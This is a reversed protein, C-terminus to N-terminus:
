AGSKNKRGHPGDDHRVTVHQWGVARDDARLVIDHGGVAARERELAPLEKGVEDDAVHVGEAVGTHFPKSTLPDRDRFKRRRLVLGVELERDSLRDGCTRVLDDEEPREPSVAEIVLRRVKQEERIRAVVTDADFRATTREPDTRSASLSRDREGSREAREHREKRHVAVGFSDGRLPQAVREGALREAEASRATEAVLDRRQGRLDRDDFSRQENEFCCQSTALTFLASQDQRVTSMTTAAAM